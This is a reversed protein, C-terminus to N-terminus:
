PRKGSSSAGSSFYPDDFIRLIDPRDGPFYSLCRNIFDRTAQSLKCKAPFAVRRANTITGQRVLSDQSMGHGFPKQGVVMQYLVVGASWTDVKSSIVSNKKFCEPPLYWMTGAGQSTLEIGGPNDNMIKSLGFDTLKVQGGHFLINAPKLDYHIVKKKQENLYKLGSFVQMIISKAERESLTSRKKLLLDLDGGDCFELVTVFSSSSMGFVDYLRVIRSHNLNKQIEYERTAHRSYSKKQADSWSDNIQHIKCCVYRMEELDFAKYVESFGGKGLLHLLLYREHLIPFNNFRSNREDEVQRHERIVQQKRIELREEEAHLETLEKKLAQAQLSYIESLETIEHSQPTAPTAPMPRAFGDASASSEAPPKRQKAARAKLQKLQKRNAALESMSRKLEVRKRNLLKFDEGPEWIDHIQHGESRPLVQGVRFRDKLLNSIKERKQVRALDKLTDILMATVKERYERERKAQQELQREMSRLADTRERLRQQADSVKAESESLARKLAGTEPSAAATRPRDASSATTHAPPPAGAPASGMAKGPTSGPLKKPAHVAICPKNPSLFSSLDKQKLNDSSSANGFGDSSRKSKAPSVRSRKFSKSPLNRQPHAQKRKSRHSPKRDLRQRDPSASPARGRSAGRSSERSVTSGEGLVSFGVSTQEAPAASTLRPASRPSASRPSANRPIACRRRACLPMEARLFALSAFSVRVSDSRSQKSARMIAELKQSKSVPIRVEIPSREGKGLGPFELVATDPMRRVRRVWLSGSENAREAGALFHCAKAPARESHWDALRSKTKFLIDPKAVRPEPM